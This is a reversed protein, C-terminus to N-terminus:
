APLCHILEQGQRRRPQLRLYPQPLGSHGLCASRHPMLRIDPYRTQNSRCGKGEASGHEGSALGRCVSHVQCIPLVHGAEAHCKLRSDIRAALNIGNNDISHQCASKFRARFGEPQHRRNDIYVHLVNSIADRVKLYSVDPPPDCERCVIIGSHRTAIGIEAV